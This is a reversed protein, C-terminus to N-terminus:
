RPQALRQTKVDLEDTYQELEAGTAELRSVLAEARHLSSLMSALEDRAALHREAADDLGSTVNLMGEFNRATHELAGECQEIRSVYVEADNDLAIQVRRLAEEEKM